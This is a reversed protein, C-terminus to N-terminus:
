AQPVGVIGYSGTSAYGVTAINNASPSLFMVLRNATGSSAQTANSPTSSSYTGRVDPGTSVSAISSALAFVHGGTSLTVIQANSSTAGWWITAYAPHDVRLPFGYTDATGVYVGTSNITGCSTISAIYKFAKQTTVTNANPGAITQTMAFRYIDYGKITYAGASDNVSSTITLARSIMAQPNWFNVTGGTGFPLNSKVVASNQVMDIAVVSVATTGTAPVISQAIISSSNASTALTLTGNGTASQSLAIGNTSLATPFADLVPGGFLGPWGYVPTGVANGPKYAFQTRPDLLGEGLDVLSPGREENYENVAGSSSLVTGYVVNPGSNAQIAM